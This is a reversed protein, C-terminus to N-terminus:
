GSDASFWHDIEEINELNLGGSWVRLMILSRAYEYVAQQHQIQAKFVDRRSELLDVITAVGLEYGKQQAQQTKQQAELERQTSDIRAYGATANLFSTRTEREIQRRVKEYEQLAIQRRAVAERVSADVRGGEYIPVNVLMNVSGVDYPPSQRNDYSQDSYTETLQLSLQPLHEAKSSAIIQDAAELAAKLASLNPNSSVADAIWHEVQTPANPFALITLVDLSGPLTGSIERLGELAIAKQNDAEIIQTNLEQNYAEVQYLDTVLAMQRKYMENLRKVQTEVSNKEQKLYSIKDVAELTLLYRDVLEGALEMRYAEHEDESQRTAAEAGLYRLYSPLDFLAQRAQITGRLGDYYRVPENSLNLPSHSDFRNLSYGGNASVQPLLRSFAQDERAKAQDVAYQRGLLTPNNNLAQQYLDLLVGAHSDVAWCVLSMAYPIVWLRQKNRM